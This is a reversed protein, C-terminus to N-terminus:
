NNNSRKKEERGEHVEMEGKGERGWLGALLDATSYAGQLTGQRLGSSLRNKKAFKCCLILCRVVVM